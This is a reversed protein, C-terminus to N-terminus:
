QFEDGPEEEKNEPRENEHITYLENTKMDRFLVGIGEFKFFQPLATRM